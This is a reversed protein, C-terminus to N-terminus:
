PEYELRFKQRDEASLVQWTRMTIAQSASLFPWSEFAQVFENKVKATLGITALDTVNDSLLIAWQGSRDYVFVHPMIVFGVGYMPHQLPRPGADMIEELVYAPADKYVSFPCDVSIELPYLTAYAPASLFFSSSNIAKLFGILSQYENEQRFFRHNELFFYHDFTTRFPFDFFNRNFSFTETLFLSKELQQVEDIMWHATILQYDTRLPTLYEFDKAGMM